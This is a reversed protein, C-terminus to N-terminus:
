STAQCYSSSAPFFRHPHQSPELACCSLLPQDTSLTVLDQGLACPTWSPASCCSGKLVAGASAGIFPSRGLDIAHLIYVNIVDIGSRLPLIGVSRQLAVELGWAEIAALLTETDAHGRWPSDVLKGSELEYRLELHNYIEGNFAIVFRGTHSAM